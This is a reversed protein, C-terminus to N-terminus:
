RGKESRTAAGKSVLAILRGIKSTVAAMVGGRHELGGSGRMLISLRALCTAKSKCPRRLGIARLTAVMAALRGKVEGSEGNGGADETRATLVRGHRHM